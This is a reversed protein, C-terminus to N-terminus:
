RDIIADTNTEEEKGTRYGCSTLYDALSGHGRIWDVAQMLESPIGASYSILAAVNEPERCDLDGLQCRLLHRCSQEPLAKVIVTTERDLSHGVCQTRRTFMSFGHDVRPPFSKFTLSDHVNDVIMVWKGREPNSLWRELAKKHTEHSATKADQLNLQIAIDNLAEEFDSVNGAKIFFMFLIDHERQIERAFTVALL